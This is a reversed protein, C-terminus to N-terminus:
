PALAGPHASTQASNQTIPSSRAAWAGSVIQRLLPLNGHFFHGAGPVVTVPLNQPRAWDLVASLPVVDDLEGQIVLTEPPVPAAQQKEVSPGVLVLREVPATAALRAAVQTAVYGGFSFGALALPQGAARQATIVAMADDIEGRGEDWAGESAGVGRFNFRWTAYGLQLFARALTQVVKHDMTGGFLPHPHCVLAMGRPSGSPADFACELAGAPGPLSLHQTQPNM